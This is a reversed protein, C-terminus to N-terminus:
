AIMYATRASYKYVERTATSSAALLNSLTACWVDVLEDELHVFSVAEDLRLPVM